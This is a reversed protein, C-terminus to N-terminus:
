KQKLDYLKTRPISDFLRFTVFFIGGIPQIHPLNRRYYEKIQNIKMCEIKTTTDVSNM